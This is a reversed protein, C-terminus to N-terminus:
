HSIVAQYPQGETMVDYADAIALISALLPIEEGKLGRPYGNGDWHKHYALIAQAILLVESSSTAIRYGNQPHRKM